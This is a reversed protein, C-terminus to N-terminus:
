DGTKYKVPLKGTLLYPIAKFTAIWAGVSNTLIILCLNPLLKIFSVSAVNKAYSPFGQDLLLTPLKKLLFYQPVIYFVLMSVLSLLTIWYSKLILSLIFPAIIFFTDFFWYAGAGLGQFFLPILQLHSYGQKRMKRYCSGYGLFNWFWISKQKIFTTFRDPVDALELAPLSLIPVSNASLIFGFTLDETLLDSPYGHNSTNIKLTMGSGHGVVVGLKTNNKKGWCKESRTGYNRVLRSEHGLCYWSQYLSMANVFQNSDPHMDRVFACPQQFVFEKGPHREILESLKKFTIESIISDANYVIYFTGMEEFTKIKAIAYNLQTAMNGHIEYDQFIHISDRFESLRGTNISQVIVEETTTTNSGIKDLTERISTLVAIKIKFYPSKIKLFRLVTDEIIAQERLAPILIFLSQKVSRSREHVVQKLQRFLRLYSLFDFIGREAQFCICLIIIAIYLFMIM